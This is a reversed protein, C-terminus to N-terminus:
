AIKKIINCSKLNPRSITLVYKVYWPRLHRKECLFQMISYTNYFALEITSNEMDFLCKPCKYTLHTSVIGLCFRYDRVM